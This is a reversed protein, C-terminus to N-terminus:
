IWWLNSKTLHLNIILQSFVLSYRSCITNADSLNGCLLPNGRKEVNKMCKRWEKRGETFSFMQRPFWSFWLFQIFILLRMKVSECLSMSARSRHRFSILGSVLHGNFFALHTVKCKSEPRVTLTKTCFGARKECEDADSALNVSLLM